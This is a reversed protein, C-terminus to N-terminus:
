ENCKVVHALMLDKIKGMEKTHAANMRIFEKIDDQTLEMDNQVYSAQCLVRSSLLKIKEFLEENAKVKIAM